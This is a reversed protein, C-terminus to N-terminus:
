QGSMSHTLTTTQLTSQLRLLSHNTHFKQFTRYTGNCDSENECNVLELENDYLHANVHLEFLVEACIGNGVAM